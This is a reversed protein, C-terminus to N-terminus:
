FRSACRERSILWTSEWIEKSLFKKFKFELREVWDSDKDLQSYHVALIWDKRQSCRQFTHAMELDQLIESLWGTFIVGMKFLNIKFKKRGPPRYHSLLCKRDPLFLSVDEWTYWIKCRSTHSSLCVYHLNCLLTSVQYTTYNVNSYQGPEGPTIQTFSIVLGKCSFIEEWLLRYSMDKQLNRWLLFLLGGEQLQDPCSV